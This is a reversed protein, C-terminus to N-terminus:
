TKTVIGARSAGPIVPLTQRFDGCLALVKAGFLVQTDKIDRVCADLAQPLVNNLMTAEDVAILKAMWVLKALESGLPIRLSCDEGLNLPAKFRSHFTRGKSLHMAAKGTTATALAVYGGAEMSRVKDLVANILMTKGCGRAAQIFVQRSKGARVAEVLTNYIAAQEDVKAEDARTAAEPM